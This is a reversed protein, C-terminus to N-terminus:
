AIASKTTFGDPLTTGLGDPQQLQDAAKKGVASKATGNAGSGSPAKANRDSQTDAHAVSIAGAAM